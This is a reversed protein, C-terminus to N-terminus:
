CKGKKNMEKKGKDIKMDKKSGEMAKGLMVMIKEKKTAM